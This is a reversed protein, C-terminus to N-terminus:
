IISFILAILNLINSTDLLSINSGKTFASFAGSDLIIEPTYGLTDIVTSLPKNKFYYYSLLLRDPKLKQLVETELTSKGTYVFYNNASNQDATKLFNRLQNTFTSFEKNKKLTGIADMTNGLSLITKQRPKGNDRFSEVLSWYYVGNNKRNRLYM